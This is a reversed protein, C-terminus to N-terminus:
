PVLQDNENVSLPPLTGCKMQVLKFSKKKREAFVLIADSNGLTSLCCPKQQEVSQVHLIQKLDKIELFEIRANPPRCSFQLMLFSCSLMGAPYTGVAQRCYGTTRGPHSHPTSPPPPNNRESPIWGGRCFSVQSFM